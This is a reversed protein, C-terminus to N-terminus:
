QEEEVLMEGNIILKDINEYPIFTKGIQLGYGEDYEVERASKCILHIVPTSHLCASYIVTVGDEQLEHDIFEECGLGWEWDDCGTNKLTCRYTRYQVQVEIRM